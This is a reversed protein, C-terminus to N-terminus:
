SKMIVWRNKCKTIIIVFKARCVGSINFSGNPRFFRSHKRLVSVPGQHHNDSVASSKCNSCVQLPAQSRYMIEGRYVLSSCLRFSQVTLERGGSIYHLLVMTASDFVSMYIINTSNGLKADQWFM